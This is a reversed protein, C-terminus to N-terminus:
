YPIFQLRDLRKPLRQMCRRYLQKTAFQDEIM